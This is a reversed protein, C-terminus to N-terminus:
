KEVLGVARPRHSLQANDTNWPQSSRANIKDARRRVVCFDACYVFKM